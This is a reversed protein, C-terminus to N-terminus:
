YDYTIQEDWQELNLLVINNRTRIPRLDFSFTRIVIANCLEENKLSLKLFRQEPNSEAIGGSDILDVKWTDGSCGGSEIELELCDGSLAVNKISYYRTNTNQYRENDVITIRDCLSDEFPHDDDSESCSLLLLFFIFYIISSIKM